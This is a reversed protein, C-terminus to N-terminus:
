TNLNIYANLKALSESETNMDLVEDIYGQARGQELSVETFIASLFNTLDASSTINYSSREDHTPVKHPYTILGREDLMSLVLWRNQAAGNCCFYKGSGGPYEAVVYGNELRYDMQDKISSVIGDKINEIGM